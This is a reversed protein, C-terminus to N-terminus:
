PLILADPYSAAYRQKLMNAQQFSNLPGVRVVTRGQADPAATPAVGDRRLSDMASQATAANAFTAFQVTFGRAGQHERARQAPVTNPFEQQM